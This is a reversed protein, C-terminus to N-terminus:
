DATVRECHHSNASCQHLVVETGEAQVLVAKTQWGIVELTTATKEERWKNM